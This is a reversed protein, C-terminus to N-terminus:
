ISLINSWVQHQKKSKLSIYQIVCMLDYLVSGHTHTRYIKGIVMEVWGLQDKIEKIM